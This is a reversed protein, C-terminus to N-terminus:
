DNREMTGIIKRLKGYGVFQDALFTFMYQFPVGGVQKRCLRDCRRCLPLSEINNILNSRLEKYPTDNWIECISKNRVNGLNIAAMYDQPCPTVTGDWCIVMAYWPFTCVNYNRLESVDPANSTTWEYEKKVLFENLGLSKFDSLLSDVSQRDVINEYHPFDIKEIVFYPHKTRRQKKLELINKINEVTTEFQAGKRVREYIDKQFGDFSFSVLDPQADILQMAKAKNLLTGNTHFRVALGRSKAYRIMDFLQNNILPEGRHHINIDNVFDKVEDIIKKFLSFEMIGKDSNPIEKNPCMECKLNCALSSEIWLRIPFTDLIIRRRKYNYLIKTLTTIKKFANM